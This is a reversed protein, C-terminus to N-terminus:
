ALRYESEPGAAGDAAIRGERALHILIRTIEDPRRGAHALAAFSEFSTLM